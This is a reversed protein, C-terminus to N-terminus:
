ASALVRDYVAFREAETEEPDVYKLWIARDPKAGSLERRSRRGIPDGSHGLVVGDQLLIYEGAYARHYPEPDDRYDLAQECMSRHWSAVREHSDTAQSDFLGLPPELDHQFDVEGLSAPGWGQEVGVLLHNRDRRFPPTPWDAYPDHGMLAAGCLDTALTHDGALLANTERAEGGWEVRSQGVLGDVINLVPRLTAALDAFVYPLRVLHHFYSRPRTTPHVPCWGFLNKSCLTIGAFAHTKLAALSVLADARAVTEHFTYSGFMAGGDPAALTAFPPENCNVFEVDLERLLDLFFFDRHDPVLTTDALIVRGRCRRKLLGLVARLVSEDVLEQRRGAHLRIQEPPWVINAKVVVTAASELREWSRTLPETIRDLAQAITEDSARHDCHAARVTYSRETQSM